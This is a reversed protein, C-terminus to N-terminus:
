NPLTAASSEEHAAAAHAGVVKLFEVLIAVGRRADASNLDRVITLVSKNVDM